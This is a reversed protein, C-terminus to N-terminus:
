HPYQGTLGHEIAFLIAGTRNSVEAKSYIHELHNRVTKESIHLQEALGRNSTGRAMLALIEAERSTLGAPWTQRRGVRHGAARLVADV